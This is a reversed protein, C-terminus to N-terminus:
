LEGYDFFDSIMGAPGTHDILRAERRIYHHLVVPGKAVLM